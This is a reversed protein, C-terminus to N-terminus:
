MVALISKVGPGFRLVVYKQLTFHFHTAQIDLHRYVRLILVSPAVGPCVSCLWVLWFVFPADILFYYIGKIRLTVFLHKRIANEGQQSLTPSSFPGVLGQSSLYVTPAKAKLILGVVAGRFQCRPTELPRLQILWLPAFVRCIFLTKKGEGNASPQERAAAAAPFLARKNPCTYSAATPNNRKWETMPINYLSSLLSFIWAALCWYSAYSKLHTSIIWPTRCPAVCLVLGSSWKESGTPM